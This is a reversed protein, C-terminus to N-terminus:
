ANANANISMRRISDLQRIAHLLNKAPVLAGQYFAQASLEAEAPFVFTTSDGLDWVQVPRYARSYLYAAVDADNTQFTTNM